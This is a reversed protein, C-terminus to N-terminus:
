WRFRIAPVNPSGRWRFGETLRLANLMFEFGVESRTVERREFVCSAPDASLAKQMYDRPQKVRETRVIKAQQGLGASRGAHDAQWTRRRWDCM